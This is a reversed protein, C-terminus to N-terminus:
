APVRRRVPRGDLEPAPERVDISRGLHADLAACVAHVAVLHVEQVVATSPADVAIFADAEHALPNPLRGTLGWVRAGVERAREAARLVNPSRGSTSLLVVVDGPRGHAQVQRAFVEEFGYDNALATLVSTDVTLALGALPMRERRSDLRGVLEAALHQAQAASGGNGCFLVKGGAELVEALVMGAKAALKPLEGEAVEASRRAAAELYARAEEPDLPRERGPPREDGM